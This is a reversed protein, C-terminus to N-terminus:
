NGYSNNLSIQLWKGHAKGFEPGMVTHEEFFSGKAVLQCPGVSDVEGQRSNHPHADSPAAKSKRNNSENPCDDLVAM